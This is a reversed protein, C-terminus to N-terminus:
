ANWVMVDFDKKILCLTMRLLESYGADIYKGSSPSRSLYPSVLFQLEVEGGCSAELHRTCLGPSGGSGNFLWTVYYLASLRAKGRRTFVM